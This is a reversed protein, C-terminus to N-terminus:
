YDRTIEDRRQKKLFLFTTRVRLKSRLLASQATRPLSFGSDHSTSKGVALPGLLGRTLGVAWVLAAPLSLITPKERYEIRPEARKFPCIKKVCELKPRNTHYLIQHGVIEGLWVMSGMEDAM